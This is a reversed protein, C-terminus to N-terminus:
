FNNIYKFNKLKNKKSFIFGLFIFFFFFTKSKQALFSFFRTVTAKLFIKWM